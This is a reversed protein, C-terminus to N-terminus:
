KRIELPQAADIQGVVVDAAHRVVREAAQLRQGCQSYLQANKILLYIGLYGLTIFNTYLLLFESLHLRFRYASTTYYKNAWWELIRVTIEVANIHM